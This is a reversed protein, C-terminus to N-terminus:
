PTEVEYLIGGRFKLTVGGAIAAEYDIGIEGDVELNAFEGKNAECTGSIFINGDEVLVLTAWLEWSGSSSLEYVETGGSVPKLWIWGPPSQHLQPSTEGIFLSM